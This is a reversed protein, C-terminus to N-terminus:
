FQKKELKQLKQLKADKYKHTGVCLYEYMFMGMFLISAAMIALTMDLLLAKSSKWGDHEMEAVVGIRFDEMLIAPQHTYHYVMYVLSKIVDIHYWMMSSTMMINVGLQEYLKLINTKYTHSLYEMKDVHGYKIPQKVFRSTKKALLTIPTTHLLYEVTIKEDDIIFTKKQMLTKLKKVTLYFSKTKSGSQRTFELCGLDDTAQTITRNRIIRMFCINNQIESTWNSEHQLSQMFDQISECSLKTTCVIAAHQVSKDCTQRLRHIYSNLRAKVGICGRTDIMLVMLCLYVILDTLFSKRFMVEWAMLPISAMLGYQCYLTYWEYKLLEITIGDMNEKWFICAKINCRGM